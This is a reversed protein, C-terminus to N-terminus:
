PCHQEVLSCGQCSGQGEFANSDLALQASSVYELPHLLMLTHAVVIAADSPAMNLNPESFRCYCEIDACKHEPNSSEVRHLSTETPQMPTALIFDSPQKYCADPSPCHM